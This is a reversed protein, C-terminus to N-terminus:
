HLVMCNIFKKVDSILDNDSLTPTTQCYIFNSFSNTIILLNSNDINFYDAHVRKMPSISKEWHSLEQRTRAIPNTPPKLWYLNFLNQDGPIRITTYLNHVLYEFKSICEIATLIPKEDDSYHIKSSSLYQSYIRTIKFDQRKKSISLVAWIAENSNNIEINLYKQDHSTDFYSTTIILRRLLEIVRSVHTNDDVVVIIDDVFHYVDEIKWSM